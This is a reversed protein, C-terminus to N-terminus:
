VNAPQRVQEVLDRRLKQQVADFSDMFQRFVCIRGQRLTYFNAFQLRIVRDGDRAFMRVDLTLAVRDDEAIISTVEHEIRRYLSHLAVLSRMMAAKGRKQGLTPFIEVPAYGIFDINEDYYGGARELDGAYGAKLYNLIRQKNLSEPM